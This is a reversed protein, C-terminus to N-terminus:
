RRAQRGGHSGLAGPELARQLGRAHRRAPPTGAGSGRRGLDDEQGQSV